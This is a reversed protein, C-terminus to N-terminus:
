TKGGARGQGIHEDVEDEPESRPNGDPDITSMILICIGWIAAIGLLCGGLLEWNM